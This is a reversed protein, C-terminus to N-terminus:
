PSFLFCYWLTPSLSSSPHPMYVQLTGLRQSWLPLSTNQPADAKLTFSFTRFNSTNAVVYASSDYDLRLVTFGTDLNLSGSLTKVTARNAEAIISIAYM